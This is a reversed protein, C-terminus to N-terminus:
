HPLSRFFAVNQKQLFLVFKSDFLGVAIIGNGTKVLCKCLLAAAAPCRRTDQTQRYYRRNRDARSLKADRQEECTVGPWRMERVVWGLSRQLGGCPVLAAHILSISCLEGRTEYHVVGAFHQIGFQTEYSNKPPIYNSNLKHQSNLKYLM